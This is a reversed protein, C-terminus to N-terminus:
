SFQRQQEESKENIIHKTKALNEVIGMLLESQTSKCLFHDAGLELCKQRYQQYPYNTVMIVVTSPCNQKLSRLVELGRGQSMQVDLIALDPKQRHIFDFAAPVDEAEAVLNIGAIGLLMEVLRDRLLASDDAILIIM